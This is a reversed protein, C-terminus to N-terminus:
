THQYPPITTVSPPRPVLLYSAPTDFPQKSSRQLDYFVQCRIRSTKATDFWTNQYMTQDNWYGYAMDPIPTERRAANQPMQQLLLRDLYPRSTASRNGLRVGM